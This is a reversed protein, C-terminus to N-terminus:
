KAQVVEIRVGPRLIRGAAIGLKLLGEPDSSGEALKLRAPSAPFQGFTPDAPVFGSDDVQVEVWEHYGARGGDVVVGDVLRTPIQLSRLLASLLVAHETCDGTKSKLTTVAPAYGRDLTKAEVHRYVFQTLAAIKERTTRAGKTERIAAQHLARNATDEYPTPAILAAREAASLARKTSPVARVVVDVTGKGRAVVRQRNDEPVNFDRASPTHIRYRVEKLGTRPLIPAPWTSRALLDVQGPQIGSPPPASVPYAVAGLAPTRAIITEGSATVEEETEMGAFRTVVLFHKGKPKIDVSMNVVAGMEEVLVPRELHVGAKLNDRILREMATAFTFGEKLAITQKATSGGQTTTIHLAGDKVEGVTRQEGAADQKTFTYAIPELDKTTRVDILTHMKLETAGRKLALRSDRVFRFGEATEYDRGEVTGVEHGNMAFALNQYRVERANEALATATALMILAILALFSQRRLM